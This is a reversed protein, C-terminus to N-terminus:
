EARVPSGCFPCEATAADLWEAEDPRLPGGCSPCHTPLVARAPPAPDRDAAPLEPLTQSLWAAIEDAQATLGRSRLETVTRNGARHLEPWRNAAAMLALGRKLDAMGPEIQGALIRARGAQLYLQPARPGSREQAGRALAEFAEAAALYDGAAMLRGARQLAPPVAPAGMLARRLPRGPRFPRRM